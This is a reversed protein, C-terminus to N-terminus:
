ECLAETVCTWVSTPDAYFEAYQGLEYSGDYTMVPLLTYTDMRSVSESLENASMNSVIYEGAKDLARFVLGEDKELAKKAQAAFAELYSRHREMRGLNSDTLATDRYRLYRLANDGKLTIVAGPVYEEGLGPITDACEITVGGVIDNLISVADMTISIYSDVPADYLFKSVALATNECSDKGGTGYTHAYALQETEYGGLGGNLAIWPVETMTDRNLQIPQVTKANNDFVLFILFDSLDYNFLYGDEPDTGNKGEIRDTGILLLTDTGHRLAATDTGNSLTKSPTEATLVKGANEVQEANARRQALLAFFVLAAAVVLLLALLIGKHNKKSTKM